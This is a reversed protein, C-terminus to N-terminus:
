LMLVQLTNGSGRILNFSQDNDKLYDKLSDHITRFCNSKNVNKFEITISNPALVIPTSGTGTNAEMKLPTNPANITVNVLNTDDKFLEKIFNLIDSTTYHTYNTM